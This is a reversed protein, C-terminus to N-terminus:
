KSLRYNNKGDKKVKYMAEDAKKLLTEMDDGNDPFFSIGISAGIQADNKKFKFPDSLDHIIKQAVSEVNEFLSISQLIITFEDGGIRAVTDSDRVCGLLRKATKILLEDGVDHGLTDNVAKFGDLDIFMLAFKRDYRKSQRLTQTLRDHFLSRNPLDTLKDYNASRYLKMQHLKRRVIAKSIIWSPISTLLFLLIAMLFLKVLLGQTESKLDNAQIHSTIKWYYESPKLGKKSDGSAITSGTSSKLGETLPFITASTFLGNKNYIQCNDSFLIEKWAEPYSLSFKRNSREKIMFGWENDQVPSCLWFGDSNILMINGLSLTSAKRLSEILKGGLYNLIIVGRKKKDNDFIPVGFRLMPKFPKEIKGKEINLDLPSVFIENSGLAFTDKFYYRSEKSQLNSQEVIEPKGNNYNVRVIEMGTEDIYRIQDYIRKKRCLELYENAIWEKYKQENNNIMHHLENQKSLFLLDSIITEFNNTVLSLQLKLNVQEELKLRNLYDKSELSYLMGIIGALISGFFLFILFFYRFITKNVNKISHDNKTM